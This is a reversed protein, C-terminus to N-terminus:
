ATDGIACAADADPPAIRTSTTAGVPQAHDAELRADHSVMVAPLTPVPRADMEKATAAFGSVVDRVPVSDTAPSVTVTVCAAAAHLYTTVGVDCVIAAPPPVASPCTVVVDPQAHVVSFM